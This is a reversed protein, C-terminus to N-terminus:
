TMGAGPNARVAALAAAYHGPWDEPRPHGPRQVRLYCAWATDVDGLDPLPHPDAYYSLRCLGCDLLDDGALATYVSYSTAPVGRSACLAAAIKATVSNALLAAVGGREYQTLGRAPGGAYQVRTALGTEQLATALVIVRPRDGGLKASLLAFAPDIIQTLADAPAIPLTLQM